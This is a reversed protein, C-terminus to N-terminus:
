KAEIMRETRALLKELVRIERYIPKRAEGPAAYILAIHLQGIQARFGDRFRKDHDRATMPKTTM